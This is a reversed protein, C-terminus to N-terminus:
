SANKNGSAKSTDLFSTITTVVQHIGDSGGALLLSTLVVDFIMFGHSPVPVSASPTALLAQIARVGVLSACLSLVSSALFAYRQTQAKFEDLASQAASQALADTGALAAALNRQLALADLGRSSAVVVEVGREIFVSVAFLPAMTPGLNALGQPSFSLAGTDNGSRLRTFVIAVVYLVLTIAPVVIRHLRKHEKPDPIM